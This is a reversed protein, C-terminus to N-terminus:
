LGWSGFFVPVSKLLKGSRTTSIGRILGRKKAFRVTRVKMAGLSMGLLQETATRSYDWMGDRSFIRVAETIEPHLREATPYDYQEWAFALAAETEATYYRKRGRRKPPNLNSRNRERRLARIVSKSPMGTASMINQLVAGKAKKNLKLYAPFQEKIITHKMIRNM